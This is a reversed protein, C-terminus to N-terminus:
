SVSESKQHLRCEVFHCSCLVVFSEFGVYEVFRALRNEMQLLKKRLGACLKEGEDIKNECGAGFGFWM